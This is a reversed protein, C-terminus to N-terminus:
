GVWGGFFGGGGWPFSPRKKPPNHGTDLCMSQWSHAVTALHDNPPLKTSRRVAQISVIKLYMYCRFPSWAISWPSHNSTLNVLHKKLTQTNEKPTFKICEKHQQNHINHISSQLVHIFMYLTTKATSRPTELYDLANPVATATLEPEKSHIGDAILWATMQNGTTATCLM